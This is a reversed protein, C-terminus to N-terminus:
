TPCIGGSMCHLFLCFLFSWFCWLFGLQKQDIQIKSHKKQKTKFFIDEESGIKSTINNTWTPFREFLQQCINKLIFTRLFKAINLSFCRHQLRKKYFKCYQLGASKNFSLSWYLHKGTFIAFKKLVANRYFVQENCKESIKHSSLIIQLDKLIFNINKMNRTDNM